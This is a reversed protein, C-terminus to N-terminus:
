SDKEMETIYHRVEESLETTPQDVIMKGLTSLRQANSALKEQAALLEAQCIEVSGTDGMQRYLGIGYILMQCYEEYEEYGFPNKEFAANKYQILSGFDGKAYSYKAKISYPAFYHTNQELIEDALANAKELDKTQELMTLKNRTNAAYLKDSLENFGLHSLLLACGMYVCLLACAVLATKAPLLNKKLHIPTGSQPSLLSILLLFMAIFQLDFDLLCHLFVTGVIVKDRPSQGKGLLFSLVTALFLCGPILGVDLFLQLLENHAYAVSYVGTQINGQIYYYGMYGVGFPYKLLLPLADVLYLLRGVFTSETLSITLYRYLVTDQGWLLIAVAFIGLVGLGILATILKKRGGLMFFALNALVFLVFVTRSGTYLLGGILVALVAYDALKLKEKKLILLQCVLLLLAFTNPYQFFGALRGAVSFFESTQPMLMGAASVLVMLAGFWPLVELMATSDEQWLAITYLLIPLFKVFGIWAMGSDVAWFCTLGYFLVTLFVTLSLLSKKLILRKNKGMKCILYICLCVSVACSIYEHFGGFLALAALLLIDPCKLQRIKEKLM